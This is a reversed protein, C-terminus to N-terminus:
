QRCSIHRPTILTGQRWSTDQRFSMTRLINRLRLLFNIQTLYEKCFSMLHLFERINLTKKSIKGCSM